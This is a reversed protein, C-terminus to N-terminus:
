QQKLQEITQKRTAIEAALKDIQILEDTILSRLKEIQVYYADYEEPTIEEVEILEQIKVIEQEYQAIKTNSEAIKANATDIEKQSKDILWRNLNIKKNPDYYNTLNKTYEIAAQEEAASIRTSTKNPTAKKTTKPTATPKKVTKPTDVKTNSNNTETDVIPKSEEPKTETSTDVKKITVEQKSVNKDIDKKLYKNQYNKYSLGALMVISVFLSIFIISAIKFRKTSMLKDIKPIKIM